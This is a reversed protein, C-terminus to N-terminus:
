VKKPMWAELTMPMREEVQQKSIEAVGAVVWPKEERRVEGIPKEEEPRMEGVMYESCEAAKHGM